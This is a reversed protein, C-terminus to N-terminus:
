KVLVKKVAFDNKGSLLIVYLGKKDVKIRSSDDDLKEEKIVRGSSNLVRIHNFGIGYNSIQFSGSSPNPSVTLLPSKSQDVPKIASASESYACIVDFEEKYLSSVETSYIILTNEDDLSNASVSWDQTGTITVAENFDVDVVCFKHHCVTADPREADHEFDIVGIGQAKLYGYECDMQEVDDIVGCIDVGRKDANFIASGLSNETFINTAFDISYQASDLVAKICENTGDSPSFYLEVREGAVNFVHPTNDSKDKGFVSCTSNPFLTSSGWMEDFELTYAKALSQDQIAILNNFNLVLNNYTWNTSGTLVWANDVSEKDILLFTNHMVGDENGALVPIGQCLSELAANAFADDTIVRVKVGAEYRHNIAEIIRYNTSDSQQAYNTMDDLCIDLTQTAKAIYCIFSDVVVRTLPRAFTTNIKGSSLSATCYVGNYIPTTDNASRLGYIKAYYIQSSVLADVVISHSVGVSVSEVKGLKCDPTLGYELVSICSDNTKFNISFYSNEVEDVIPYQTFCLPENSVGGEINIALISLSFCFSLHIFLAKLKM